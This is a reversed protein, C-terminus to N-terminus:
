KAPDAPPLSILFKKKEALLWVLATYYQFLARSTRVALNAERIRLFSFVREIVEHSKVRLENLM